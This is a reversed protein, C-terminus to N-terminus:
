IYYSPALDKPSRNHFREIFISFRSRDSFWIGSLPPTASAIPRDLFSDRFLNFKYVFLRSLFDDLSNM